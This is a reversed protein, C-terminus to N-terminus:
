TACAGRWGLPEALLRYRSGHWADLQHWLESEQAAFVFRKSLEPSEGLLELLEDGEHHEALGRSFLLLRRNSRLLEYLGWGPDWPKGAHLDNPVAGEEMLRLLDFFDLTFRSSGLGEEGDFALALTAEPSGPPIRRLGALADELTADSPAGGGTALLVDHPPPPACTIKGLEAAVAAPSGTWVRSPQALAASGSGVAALLQIEMDPPLALSLDPLAPFVALRLDASAFRDDQASEAPGGGSRFPGLEHEGVVAEGYRRIADRGLAPGCVSPYTVFAIRSPRIELAVLERVLAALITEYPAPWSEDGVLIAARRKGAALEKLPPGALPEALAARVLADANSAAVAERVPRPVTLAVADPAHVALGKAGYALLLPQSM